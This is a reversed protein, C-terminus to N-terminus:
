TKHNEKSPKTRFALWLLILTLLFFVILKGPYYYIYLFEVLKIDSIAATGTGILIFTIFWLMFAKRKPTKLKLLDIMLFVALAVRIVAGSLWQYLSFFDVHAFYIGIQVMRWQEYAPYRQLAAEEPGFTSIAGMLPGITLGGLLLTLFLMHWAKFANALRHQLLLIIFVDIFGGTIYIMSKLAPTYGYEFLPALKSYDKYQFNAIMIFYGLIIVFPLLFGSCIAISNLGSAASYICVGLLALTVVMLPTQPVYTIKAWLTTDKLTIAAILFTHIFPVAVLLAGIVQNTQESFWDYLHKHKMKKAIYYIALSWPMFLFTAAIVGVWADRGGTRLLLPIITVHNTFGIALLLIIVTQFVSLRQAM